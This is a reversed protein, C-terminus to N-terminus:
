PGGADRAGRWAGIAAFESGCGVNGIFRAIIAM